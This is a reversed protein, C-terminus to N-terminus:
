WMGSLAQFGSKYCPPRIGSTEFFTTKHNNEKLLISGTIQVNHLNIPSQKLLCFWAFPSLVMCIFCCKPLLFYTGFSLGGNIERVMVMTMQCALTHNKGDITASIDVLTHLQQFLLSVSQSQRM